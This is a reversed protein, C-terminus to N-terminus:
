PFFLHFIEISGLYKMFFKSSVMQYFFSTTECFFMSTEYEFVFSEFYAKNDGIDIGAEEKKRKFFIM